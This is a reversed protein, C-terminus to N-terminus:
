PEASYRSAETGADGESNRAFLNIVGEEAEMEESESGMEGDGVIRDSSVTPGNTDTLAGWEAQQLGANM